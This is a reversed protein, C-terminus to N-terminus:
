IMIKHDTPELGAAAQSERDRKRQGEGMVSTRKGELYLFLSLFFFLLAPLIITFGQLETSFVPVTLPPQDSIAGTYGVQPNADVRHGAHGSPTIYSSLPSIQEHAASIIDPHLCAVGSQPSGLEPRQEM